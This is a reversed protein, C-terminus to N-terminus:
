RGRRLYSPRSTGGAGPPSVRSVTAPLSERSGDNAASDGRGSDQARRSIDGDPLALDGAQQPKLREGGAWWHVAEFPNAYILLHNSSIFEAGYGDTIGLGFMAPKDTSVHENVTADGIPRVNNYQHSPVALFPCVQLAYEACLRHMPLDTFYRSEMSRPGGVFALKVGLGTGCIGCRRERLLRLYREPHMIRFDPKGASDYVVSAPIRLGQFKPLSLMRRPLPPRPKM